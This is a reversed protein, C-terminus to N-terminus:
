NKIDVKVVTKPQKNRLGHARAHEPPGLGNRQRITVTHCSSLLVALLSLIVIISCIKIKNM